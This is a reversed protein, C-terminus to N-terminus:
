LKAEHTHTIDSALRMRYEEALEAALRKLTDQEAVFTSFYANPLNNYSGVRQVEGKSVLKNDSVRTLVYSSRLNVIFRQAKGDPAILGPSVITGLSISLNYLRDSGYALGPNILDELSSRFHQALLRQEPISSVRINMAALEQALAPSSPSSATKAAMPEFGCATLLMASFLCGIRRLIDGRRLDQSRALRAVPNIDSLLSM